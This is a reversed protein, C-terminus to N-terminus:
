SQRADLKQARTPDRLTRSDDGVAHLPQDVSSPRTSRSPSKTKAVSPRKRQIRVMKCQDENREREDILKDRAVARRAREAKGVGSLRLHLDRFSCRIFDRLPRRFYWTVASALGVYWHTMVAHTAESAADLDM